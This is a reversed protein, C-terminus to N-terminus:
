VLVGARSLCCKVNLRDSTALASKALAEDLEAITVPRHIEIKERKLLYAISRYHGTQKMAEINLNFKSGDSAFISANRFIKDTPMGNNGQSKEAGATFTSGGHYVSPVAGRAADARMCGAMHRLTEVPGHLGGGIGAAEMSAACSDVAAAHPEVRDRIVASAGIEIGVGSDCVGSGYRYTSVM